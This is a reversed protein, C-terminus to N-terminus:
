TRAAMIAAAKVPLSSDGRQREFNFTQGTILWQGDATLKLKTSYTGEVTWVATDLLHDACGRYTVLAEGAAIRVNFDTLVHRTREFGPLFAAWSAIIEDAALSQVPQATMSSYDLLVHDSMVARVKEWNREDTSAFLQKVQNIVAADM